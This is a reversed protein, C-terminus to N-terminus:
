DGLPRLWINRYEVLDGHDQLRLPHDGPAEPQGATTNRPVEVDDHVLIGNHRVTMRASELKEGAESWRPARFWIDYTQWVTPRRCVNRDPVKVGYIAACDGTQSDVGYSDLVQVEYRDQLYVGSNGRAQGRSGEDELPTRFEVHLHCDGFAQRTIVDGTGPVVHLVENSVTWKADDGGRHRFGEAGAGDFIVIADDPPPVQFDLGTAYHMGGLVHQLFREDRWVSARHGLATYFVRGEGYDRCWALPYEGDAGRNGKAHGASEHLSLLVHVRDPDFNRFQYIEDTIRFEGGLHATAPHTTDEVVIAVDEHWPHGDFSGGIMEVYEPSEYLTDTAPHIGVFAGGTRVWDFLAELGEEGIPLEGTTYFVVVDLDALAEADIDACDQTCEVEFVGTCAEVFAEEAIARFHAQARRVVPHEFGASHTLFLARRPPAVEDDASPAAALALVGLLTPIM